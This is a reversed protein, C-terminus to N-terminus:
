EVDEHLAVKGTAEPGPDLPRLLTTQIQASPPKSAKTSIYVQLNMSSGDYDIWAYWQIADAFRTRIGETISAVTTTVISTMSGNIGIGIHDTPPDNYEENWYNDFEVFIDQSYHAGLANFDGPSGVVAITM